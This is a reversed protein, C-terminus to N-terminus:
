KVLIYDTPKSLTNGEKIYEIWEDRLAKERMAFAEIGQKPYIEKVLENYYLASNLYTVKYKKNDDIKNGNIIVKDIVFRDNEEKIVMSAGSIIPLTSVNFTNYSLKKDNISIDLLKGIEKGTMVKTYVRCSNPMVMYGVMKESYSSNFIPSTFNYSPSILIDTGYKKRLSNAIVSAAQNGGKKNFENDYLKSFKVINKEKLKKRNRLKKDFEDYAKKSGYKGKIMEQVVEKSISFFDESTLRVYLYNSEIYPKLNDFEKALELKVDKAYSIVDKKQALYNQGEESIMVKLIKLALDKRKKNKELNKNLSVQFAPYTLLWNQNNECFYPLMVLEKKNNQEKENLLTTGTERIMAVKNNRFLDLVKDFEMEVDEPQLKVDQIFKDMREFAKPWIVDDLESYGNTPDEYDDRWRKGDYSILESISLGQLIELCTYDYAFDSVFGRIGNKEFKRCANIFSEYDTPLPIDYKKFLDKNAVIGDVEGCLPLWNISGDGNKYNDLYTSFYSAAEETKSLDMLSDKLESADWVSFRRNTIIDPLGGNKDLFEYFTLDNNGVVFEIDAEPVKSQIYPAYEEMLSTSWLYVKIKEKQKGFKIYFGVGIAVLMLIIVVSIIIKKVRGRM